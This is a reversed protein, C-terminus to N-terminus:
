SRGLVFGLLFFVVAYLVTETQFGLVLGTLAITACVATLHLYARLM